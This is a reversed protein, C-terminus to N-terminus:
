VYADILSHQKREKGLVLSLANQRGNVREDENHSSREQQNARSDQQSQEEINAQILVLDADAFWQKLQPLQNQMMQKIESNEVVLTVSSQQHHMEIKAKVEGLQEQQIKLCAKDASSDISFRPMDQQAVLTKGQSHMSPKATGLNIPQTSTDQLLRSAPQMAEQRISSATIDNQKSELLRFAKDLEEKDHPEPNSIQLPDANVETIKAPKQSSAKLDKLFLFEKLEDPLPLETVAMKGEAEPFHAAQMSLPMQAKTAALLDANFAPKKKVMKQLFPTETLSSAAAEKSESVFADQENNLSAEATSLEGGNRKFAEGFALTPYKTASRITLLTSDQSMRGSSAAPTESFFAELRSDGPADQQVAISSSENLADQAGFMGDEPWAQVPQPCVDCLATFLADFGEETNDGDREGEILSRVWSVGQQILM